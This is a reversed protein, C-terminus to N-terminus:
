SRWGFFTIWFMSDGAVRMRITRVDFSQLIQVRYNRPVGQSKLYESARKVGAYPEQPSKGIENGLGFWRRVTQYGSHIAEKAREILGVGATVGPDVLYKIGKYAGTGV